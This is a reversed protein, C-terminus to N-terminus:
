AFARTRNALARAANRSEADLYEETARLSFLGLKGLNPWRVLGISSVFVRADAPLIWGRLYKTVERLTSLIAMMPLLSLPLVVTARLSLAPNTIVTALGSVGVVVAHFARGISQSGGSRLAEGTM